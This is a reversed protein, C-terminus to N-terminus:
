PGTRSCKDQPVRAFGARQEPPTSQVVVSRLSSQRAQVAIDRCTAKAAAINPPRVPTPIEPHVNPLAHESSYSLCRANSLHLQSLLIFAIGASHGYVRQACRVRCRPHEAPRRRSQRHRFQLYRSSSRRRKKSCSKRKRIFNPTKPPLLTTRQEMSNTERSSCWRSTFPQKRMTCGSLRCVKSLLLLRQMEPLAIFLFRTRLRVISRMRRATMLRKRSNIHAKLIKVLI